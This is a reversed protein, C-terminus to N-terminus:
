LCALLLPFGKTVVLLLASTLSTSYLNMDFETKISLNFLTKPIKSCLLM